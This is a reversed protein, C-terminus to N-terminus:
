MEMHPHAFSAFDECPSTTFNGTQTDTIIECVLEESKTQHCNTFASDNPAAAITFYHVVMNSTIAKSTDGGSLGLAALTVQHCISCISSNM